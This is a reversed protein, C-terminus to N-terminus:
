FRVEFKKITLTTTYDGDMLSQNDKLEKIEKNLQDIEEDSGEVVIKDEDENEDEDIIEEIEQTEDEFDSFNNTEETIEVSDTNIEFCKAFPATEIKSAIKLYYNYYYKNFYIKKFIFIILKQM